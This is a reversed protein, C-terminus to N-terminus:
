PLLGDSMPFVIPFDDESPNELRGKLRWTIQLCADIYNAKPSDSPNRDPERGFVYDLVKFRSCVDAIAPESFERMTPSHAFQNRVGRITQLDDFTDAGYLGLAAGFRIRAAFDGLPYGFEFLGDRDEKSLPVFRSVIATELAREVLSASIIAVAYDSGVQKDEILRLLGQIRSQDPIEKALTKLLKLKSRPSSVQVVGQFM